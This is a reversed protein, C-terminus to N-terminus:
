ETLESISRVLPITIRRQETLSAHDLREILETLAQMNRPFRRVIYETVDKSVDLGRLQLQLSLASSLEDDALAHLQFVPGWSLRTVLDALSFHLAEISLRSSFLLRTSSDRCRNICHFLAEQADLDLMHIDDLCLLDVRELDNLAGDYSALEGTLYAVQYGQAAFEQCAASLLHTKGAAHDGWLLMQKEDVNGACFAKLTAHTTANDAGPWFSEFSSSSVTGLSLTLQSHLM